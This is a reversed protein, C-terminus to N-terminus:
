LDNNTSPKVYAPEKELTAKLIFETCRGDTCGAPIYIYSCGPTGLELGSPDTWLDPSVTPLIDKTITEPYYNHSPYYDETLAYYFANIATKRTNDRSFADLDSKQILFFTAVLAIFVLVIVLELPTFKASTRTKSKM